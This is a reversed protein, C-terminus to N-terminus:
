AAGFVADLRAQMAGYCECAGGELGARDLVTVQGNRYRILGARQLANAALSVGSRQVGLMLALLEHTLGFSDGGVSDHATLLWRCCRETLGHLRNCAATQAIAAIAVGAYDRMLAALAPERAAIEHLTATEIRLAEGPVQVLAELLTAKLGLLGSLCVAGEAGIAGVEAVRGDDMSKVLSVLGRTMFYVSTPAEGPAFLRQRRELVIPTLHPWLRAQTPSPLAALFRNDAITHPVYVNM